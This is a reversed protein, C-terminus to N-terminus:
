ALPKRWGLFSFLDCPLALQTKFAQKKHIGSTKFTVTVNLDTGPNKQTSIRTSFTEKQSPTPTLIKLVTSNDTVPRSSLMYNAFWKRERMM